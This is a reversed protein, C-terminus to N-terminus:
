CIARRWTGRGWLADHGHGGYVHRRSDAACISNRRGKFSPRGRYQWWLGVMIIWSSMYYFWYNMCTMFMAALAAVLYTKRGDRPFLLYFLMTMNFFVFEYPFTHTVGPFFLFFQSLALFATAFGAVILDDFLLFVWFFFCIAGINFLAMSTVELPFPTTAGARTYMEAVLLFFGPHLVDYVPLFSEASGKARANASM